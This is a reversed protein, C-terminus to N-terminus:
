GEGGDVGGDGGKLAIATNTQCPLILKVPSNTGVKLELVLQM